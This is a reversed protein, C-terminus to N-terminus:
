WEGDIPYYLVRWCRNCKASTHESSALGESVRVQKGCNKCEVTEPTEGPKAEAYQWVGSRSKSIESLMKRPFLESVLNVLALTTDPDCMVSADDECEGVIEWLREIQNQDKM